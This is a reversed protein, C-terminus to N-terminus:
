PAPPPSVSSRPRPPRAPFRRRAPRASSPPTSTARTSTSRRATGPRTTRAATNISGSTTRGSRTRSMRTASCARTATGTPSGSTTPRPAADRRAGAPRSHDLGRQRVRGRPRRARAAREGLRLRVGARGPQVGPQQGLLGGHRLLDPQGAPARAANSDNAADDAAATGQSAALTPSIKAVDSRGICPAQLGVYLPILSWGTAVAGATWTPSLQPNSCARNAGGVYIGLARYPSALWANLTDLKPANCADFAYGEFASAKSAGSSASGGGALVFSLGAALAVGGLRRWHRRVGSARASSLWRM